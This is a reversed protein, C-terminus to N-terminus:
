LDEDLSPTGQSIGGWITLIEYTIRVFDLEIFSEGHRRGVKSLLFAMKKQYLSAMM